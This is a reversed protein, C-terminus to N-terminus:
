QCDRPRPPKLNIEHTHNNSIKPVSAHDQWLRLGACSDSQLVRYVAKLDTCFCHSNMYIPQITM